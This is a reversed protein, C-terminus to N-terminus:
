AAQIRIQWLGPSGLCRIFRDAPHGPFLHPLSSQKGDPFAVFRM